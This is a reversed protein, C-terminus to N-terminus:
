VYIRLEWYFTADVIYGDSCSAQIWQFYSCLLSHSLKCAQMLNCQEDFSLSSRPNLFLSFNFHFSSWFHRDFRYGDFLLPLVMMVPPQPSSQSAYVQFKSAQKLRRHFKPPMTGESGPEVVSITQPWSYVEEGGLKSEEAGM